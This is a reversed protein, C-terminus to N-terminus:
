DSITTGGDVVLNHGNVFAGAPAALYVAAAGIEDASGVRRLPTKLLRAKLGEANSMIPAAFETAILGPAISNTRVGLPGFEVAYNRALQAIAAKSLAYVGIKGNGRLGSISSTLIVTGAGRAAMAPLVRNCLKMVSRLNVRMIADYDDDTVDVLSGFHPNIGANCVLIDIPAVAQTQQVLLDLQADDGVDCTMAVVDIGEARLAEAAALCGPGDISSIVVRAGAQGMQRAIALGIGRHAGTILATQGALSFM